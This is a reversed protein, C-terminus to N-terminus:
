HLRNKAEKDRIKRMKMSLNGSYHFFLFWMPSGCKEYIFEQLFISSDSSRGPCGIPKELIVPIAHQCSPMRCAATGVASFM